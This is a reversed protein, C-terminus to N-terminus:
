NGLRRVPAPSMRESFGKAAQKIDDHIIQDTMKPPKALVRKDGESVKTMLDRLEQMQVDAPHKKIEKVLSCIEDANIYARNARSDVMQDQFADKRIKEFTRLVEDITVAQVTPLPAPAGPMVSSPAQVGQAGPTFAQRQAPVVQPRPAPVPPIRDLTNTRVLTVPKKAKAVPLPSLKDAKATLSAVDTSMYHSTLSKVNEKMQQWEGVLFAEAKKAKDTKTNSWGFWKKKESATKIRQEMVELGTMNINLQGKFLSNAFALTRARDEVSIDSRLFRSQTKYIPMINIRPIDPQGKQKAEAQARLYAAQANNTIGRINMGLENALEINHKVAGWGYGNIPLAPHHKESFKKMIKIQEETLAIALGSQACHDMREWIVKPDLGSISIPINKESLERICKNGVPFLGQNLYSQFMEKAHEINKSRIFIAQQPPIDATFVAHIGCQALRQACFLQENPPIHKLDFHQLPKDKLYDLLQKTNKPELDVRNGLETYSNKVVAFDRAINGSDVFVISNNDKADSRLLHRLEEMTAKSFAQTDPSLGVALLSNVLTAVHSHKMPLEYQLQPDDSKLTAMYEKLSKQAQINLNVIFGDKAAQKIRELVQAGIAANSGSPVKIFIQTDTIKADLQKKVFSDVKKKADSTLIPTMGANLAAEYQKIALLPIETTITVDGKLWPLPLNGEPILNPVFLGQDIVAQIRDQIQQPSNGKCQIDIVPLKINSTHSKSDKEIKKHLAKKDEVAQSYTSHGANVSIENLSRIKGIDKSIVKPQVDKHKLAQTINHMLTLKEETGLQTDTLERIRIKDRKVVVYLVNNGASDKVIFGTKVGLGKKTEVMTFNAPLQARIGGPDRLKEKIARREETGSVNFSIKINGYSGVDPRPEEEKTRLPVSVTVSVKNKVPAPNDKEIQKTRQEMGALLEKAKTVKKFYERKEPDTKPDAANLEAIITNFEQTLQNLEPDAPYRNLKSQALVLTRVQQVKYDDFANKRAYLLSGDIISKIAVDVVESPQKKIKHYLQGLVLNSDDLSRLLDQNSQKELEKSIVQLNEFATKFEALNDPTQHLYCKNNAARFNQMADAVRNVLEKQAKTAATGASNVIDRLALFEAVSSGDLMFNDGFGYNTKMLVEKLQELRATGQNLTGDDVVAGTPTTAKVKKASSISEELVMRHRMPAQFLESFNALGFQNDRPDKQLVDVALLSQYLSMSDVLAAVDKDGFAAVQSLLDVAQKYEAETLHAASTDALPDIGRQASIRTQNSRMKKFLPNDLLAKKQGYISFLNTVTTLTKQYMEETLQPNAAMIADKNQLWNKLAGFREYYNMMVDATEYFALSKLRIMIKKIEPDQRVRDAAAKLAPSADPQSAQTLIGILPGVFFDLQQDERKLKRKSVVDALLEMQAIQIDGESVNLARGKTEIVSLDDTGILYDGKEQYFAALLANAAGPGSNAMKDGRNGANARM